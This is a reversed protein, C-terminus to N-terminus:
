ELPEVQIRAAEITGDMSFLVNGSADLFDAIFPGAATDGDADLNFTARVKVSQFPLSPDQSLIVFTLAYQRNGIKDWVGLGSAAGPDTTTQIVGGDATFTAINVSPPGVAPMVKVTWSGVLPKHANAADSQVVVVSCMVSVGIVAAWLIRKIKM